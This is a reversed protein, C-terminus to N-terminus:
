MFLWGKTMTLLLAVRCGFLLVLLLLSVFSLNTDASMMDIWRDDAFCPGEKGNHGV